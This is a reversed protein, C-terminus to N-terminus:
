LADGGFSNWASTFGEADFFVTIDSFEFVVINKEKFEALVYNDGAKSLPTMYVNEGDCYREFRVNRDNTKVISDELVEDEDSCPLSLQIYIRQEGESSSNIEAVFYEDANKNDKDSKLSFTSTNVNGDNFSTSTLVEYLPYEDAVELFEPDTLDMTFGAYSPATIIFLLFFAVKKM